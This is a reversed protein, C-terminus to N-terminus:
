NGRSVSGDPELKAATTTLSVEFLCCFQDLHVSMSFNLQERIEPSILGVFLRINVLRLCNFIDLSMLNSNQRFKQESSEKSAQYSVPAYM